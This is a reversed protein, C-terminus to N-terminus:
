TIELLQRLDSESVFVGHKVIEILLPSKHGRFVDLLAVLQISLCNGKVEVHGLSDGRDYLNGDIQWPSAAGQPSVWVFSGDLEFHLWPFAELRSAAKDFTISLPTSQLKPSVRLSQVEIGNIDNPSGDLDVDPFGHIIIHFPKM